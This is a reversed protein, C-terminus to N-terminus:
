QEFVYVYQEKGLELYNAIENGSYFVKKTNDYHLQPLSNSFTPATTGDNVAYYYTHKDNYTVDSITFKYIRVSSLQEIKVKANSFDTWEESTNGNSNDIDNDETAYVSINFVGLILVVIVLISFAKEKMM